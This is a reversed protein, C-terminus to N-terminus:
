SAIEYGGLEIDCSQTRRQAVAVIRLALKLGGGPALGACTSM